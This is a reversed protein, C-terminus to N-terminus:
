LFAEVPIGCAEVLKRTLKRSPGVRGNKLESLHGPSIDLEAAIEAQTVGERKRAAVYANLNPYVRKHKSLM